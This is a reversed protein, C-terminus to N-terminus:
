IRNKGVLFALIYLSVKAGIRRNIVNGTMHDYNDYLCAELDKNLSGNREVYALSLYRWDSM